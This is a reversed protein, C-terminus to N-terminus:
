QVIELTQNGGPTQPSGPLYGQHSKTRTSGCGRLFADNDLVDFMELECRGGNRVPSWASTRSILRETIM